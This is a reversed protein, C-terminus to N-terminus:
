RGFFNLVLQRMREFPLLQSATYTLELGRVKREAREDGGSAACRHRFGYNKPGASFFQVIRRGPWERMLQGFADGESRLFQHQQPGPPRRARVFYVSDTDCYLMRGGALRVEELRGHLHLRAHATVFCAVALNNTDPARVFPWRRRVVCRDLQENLHVFDVVDQRPDGLLEHFERASGTYCVDDREARQALKGWLSNLLVKAVARLGPNPQVRGAELRIGERDAYRAVYRARQEVTQCDAPWGSAEVKLRLMTDVYGAFLSNGAELSAWRDYHWVEYLALVRYGLQLAANLEVDTYAHTWARQAARHRCRPVPRHQRQVKKDANAWEACAACLPFTLRGTRTRYPLLAHREGLEAPRPPLVRCHFFGRYPNQEVSTWPLRVRDLQEASLVRPLGVPFARYKMVFPYLSM